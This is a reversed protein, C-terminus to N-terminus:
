ARKKIVYFAIVGLVVVCAVIATVINRRKKRDAELKAQREAEAQAAELQAQIQADTTTTQFTGRNQNLLIQLVILLVEKGKELLINQLQAKTNSSVSNPDIGQQKLAAELTM